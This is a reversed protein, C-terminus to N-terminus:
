RTPRHHSHRGVFAVIAPGATKDGRSLTLVIRSHSEGPVVVLTSAAGARVLTEHLLTSQRQLAKTELLAACGVM